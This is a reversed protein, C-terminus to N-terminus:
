LERFCTLKRKYKHYSSAVNGLRVMHFLFRVDGVNGAETEGEKAGIAGADRANYSSAWVAGKASDREMCALGNGVGFIPAVERAPFFERFGRELKM